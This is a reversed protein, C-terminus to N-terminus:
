DDKWFDVAMKNHLELDRQHISFHGSCARPSPVAVKYEMDTCLVLPFHLFVMAVRIKSGLLM